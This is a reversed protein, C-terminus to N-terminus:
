IILKKIREISDSVVKYNTNKNEKNNELYNYIYNVNSDNSDDSIMGCVGQVYLYKANKYQHNGTVNKSPCLIFNSNSILLETITAGGARSIILSFKSLISSLRFIKKFKVVNSNFNYLDFYREGTIVFMKIKPFKNNFNYALEVIEKAGNSGGVFLVLVENKYFWPHDFDSKEILIPNGVLLSKKHKITDFQVGINDAFMSLFKNSLGLTTNSELLIKKCKFSGLMLPISVYGGSCIVAKVNYNKFKNKIKNKEKLVYYFTKINQLINKRYFPLLKMKYFEINYKKCIEEEMSNELGFYIFKYENRLSLILGLLPSIHGM